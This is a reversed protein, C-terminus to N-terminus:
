AVAPRPLVLIEGHMNPMHIHCWYNITGVKDATFTVTHIQGRTLPFSGIGEVEIYHNPGQVGVFNLTVRDGKYVVIQSISFTFSRFNWAGNNDPPTLVFGGGKPYTANAPFPEPPHKSDGHINANGDLHVTDIWFTRNEPALSTTTTTVMTAASAQNNNDKNTGGGSMAMNNNNSSYVPGVAITAAMIAAAATAAAAIIVVSKTQVSKLNIEENEL